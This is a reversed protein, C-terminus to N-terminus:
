FDGVPKEPLPMWRDKEFDVEPCEDLDDRSWFIDSEGQDFTYTEEQVTGNSIILVKQGLQPWEDNM